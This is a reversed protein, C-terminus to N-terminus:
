KEERERKQESRIMTIKGGKSERVYTKVEGKEIKERRNM